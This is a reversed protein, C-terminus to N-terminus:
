AVEVKPELSASAGAQLLAAFDLGSAREIKAKLTQESFNFAHEEREQTGAAVCDEPLKAIFGLLWLVLIIVLTTWLM